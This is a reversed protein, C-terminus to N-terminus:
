KLRRVRVYLAGDGGHRREASEFGAVFPRFAPGAFWQPVVRRLIGRAGDPSGRGTIVLVHRLGMAQAQALFRALAGHAATQTMEHLDIRADIEVRGKALKRRLPREIPHQTLRKPPQAERGPPGAPRTTWPQPPSNASPADSASAGNVRPKAGPEPMARGKLPVTQRAVSAWLLKDEESLGRRRRM